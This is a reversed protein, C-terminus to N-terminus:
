RNNPKIVNLRSNLINDITENMSHVYETDMYIAIQTTVNTPNHITTLTSNIWDVTYDIFADQGNILKIDIFTSSSVNISNNYDIVKGVRLGDFLDRLEIVLPVELNDEFYETVVYQGWGNSNTKPFESIITSYGQSDYIADQYPLGETISIDHPEKSFYAYFKPAPTKVEVEMELNYNNMLQGEREGDDASIRDLVSLTIDMDRFRMFFEMCKNVTRLKITVPLESRANVYSLFEVIHIIKGDVVEFGSDKALQTMIGYPVHFDLDVRESYRHGVRFAMTMFYYLDLQQPRTEVKIRFTYRLQLQQYGAGIFTNKDFDKIVCERLNTRELLYDIGFMNTDLTDRNYDLDIKPLIALAPKAKKLSKTFDFNRYDDFVHKGDVHITKFYNPSFKGIFWRSIYDTIISYMHMTSPIALSAKLEKEPM